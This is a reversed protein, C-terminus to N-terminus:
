FSAPIQQKRSVPKHSAMDDYRAIGHKQLIRNAAAQENNTM